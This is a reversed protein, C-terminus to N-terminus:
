ASFADAGIGWKLPNSEIQRIEEQMAALRNEVMQVDYSAEPSLIQTENAQQTIQYQASTLKELADNIRYVEQFTRQMGASKIVEPADFAKWELPNEKPLSEFLKRMHEIEKSMGAASRAFEENSQGLREMRHAAQEGMQLFRAFSASFEDTLILNERIQGM